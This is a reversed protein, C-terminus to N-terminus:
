MAYRLSISILDTGFNRPAIPGLPSKERYEYYNWGGKLTWHKALDIVLAASPLHYNIAAPGLPAYSNLLLNSGTTSSITYGLTLTTRNVPKLMLNASGFHDINRYYSLTLLYATTCLPTVSAFSPAPTEVFCVNLNTYLNSYTYNADLGWYRSPTLVTAFSFARNHQLNGLGDALNRLERINMNASLNLWNRPNYIAKARYWQMHRPMINTFVNDSYDIQVDANLRFKPLPQAAFGILGGQTNIQVPTFFSESFPSVCVGNPPLPPTCGGRIALTPFYLSLNADSFAFVIGQREFHHGIYATLKSSFDYHLEFINRTQNQSQDFAYLVTSVDAPSLFTHQPCGPGTYPPPCGPSPFTNIPSLATPAFLYTQLYSTGTPVRYYYWRLQDDISLKETLDYTIGLDASSTIMQASGSGTQSSTRYGFLSDIGNFLEQARPLHTEAGTYSARGTLHLRPFYSTHFSLQETPIDTSYPSVNSYGLFLNCAPNVFPGIFPTGCPSGNTTNFTLGLNVPTGNSLLFPFSNLFNNTDSKEHTYFQDYTLRSREAAFWSIGFHYSDAIDRWHQFLGAETGVHVATFSPGGNDYHAYGLVFQLNSDPFLRLDLDLMRRSLDLLKPSVNIPVFPVSTPPNLPNGLLNYDWFNLDRRWGGEFQYWKHKSARLHVAQNPDGGIGFSNESLDDFFSGDHNISHLDLSEDLLRVGPQLNVFTAYVDANGTGSLARGGFEIAFHTEYGNWVSPTEGTPPVVASPPATRDHPFETSNPNVAQPQGIASQPDTAQQNASTQATLVSCLCAPFILLEVARIHRTRM